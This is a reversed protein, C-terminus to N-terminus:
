AFVNFQIVGIVRCGQRKFKRHPMGDLWAVPRTKCNEIWAGTTNNATGQNVIGLQGQLPTNTLGGSVKVTSNQASTRFSPTRASRRM